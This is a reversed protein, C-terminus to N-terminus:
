TGVQRLFDNLDYNSTMRHIRGNKVQAEMPVDSAYRRGTGHIPGGPTDLQGTFTGAYRVTFVVRAGHVEHRLLSARQDPSAKLWAEVHHRFAELGRAEPGTSPKLVIDSALIGAPDALLSRDNYRRVYEFVLESPDTLM